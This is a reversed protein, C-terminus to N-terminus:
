GTRISKPPKNLVVFPIRELCGRKKSKSVLKQFRNHFFIRAKRGAAFIAKFAEAPDKSRHPSHYMILVNTRILYLLLQRVKVQISPELLAMRKSFITHRRSSIYSRIRVWTISSVSPKLCHLVIVQSCYKLLM